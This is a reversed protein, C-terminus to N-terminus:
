RPVIAPGGTSVSVSTLDPLVGLMEVVTNEISARSSTDYQVKLTSVHPAARAIALMAALCRIVHYGTWTEFKLHRLAPLAADTLAEVTRPSIDELQSHVVATLERLSTMQRIGSVSEIPISLSTVNVCKSLSQVVSSHLPLNVEVRRLSEAAGELLDKLIERHNFPVRDVGQPVSYNLVRLSPLRGKLQQSYQPKSSAALTLEEIQELTSISHLVNGHLAAHGRVSWSLARLSKENRKLLECQATKSEPNMAYSDGCVIRQITAHCRTLVDQLPVFGELSRLSSLAANAFVQIRLERLALAHVAVRAENRPVYYDRDKSTCITACVSAWARPDKAVSNWRFCVLSVCDLLTRGDDIFRFINLLIETPAHEM